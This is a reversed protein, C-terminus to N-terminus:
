NLPHKLFCGKKKGKKGRIGMDPSKLINSKVAIQVDNIVAGVM